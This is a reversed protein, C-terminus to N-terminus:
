QVFKGYTKWNPKWFIYNADFSQLIWSSKRQIENWLNWHEFYIFIQWIKLSLSINALSLLLPPMLLLAAAIVIIVTPSRTINNRTKKKAGAFGSVGNWHSMKLHSQESMKGERERERERTLCLMFRAYLWEFALSIIKEAPSCKLRICSKETRKTM